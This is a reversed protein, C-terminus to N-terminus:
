ILAFIWCCLCMDQRRLHMRNLKDSVPGKLCTICTHQTLYLKTECRKRVEEEQMQPWTHEIPKYKGQKVASIFATTLMELVAMNWKGGLNETLCVRPANPDPGMLNHDEFAKVLHEQPPEPYYGKVACIGKEDLFGRM